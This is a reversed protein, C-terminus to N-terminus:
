DAAADVARGRCGGAVACATGAAGPAYRRLRTATETFVEPLPPSCERLDLRTHTDHAFGPNFGAVVEDAKADDDRRLTCGGGDARGTCDPAGTWESGADTGVGRRYPNQWLRPGGATALGVLGGGAAM